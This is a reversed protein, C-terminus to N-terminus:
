REVEESGAPVEEPSASIVVTQAVPLLVRHAREGFLLNLEYYGSPHVQLLRGKGGKIGLLENHVLVDTPLEM